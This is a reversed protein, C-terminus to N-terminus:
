SLKRLWVDFGSVTLDEVLLGLGRFAAPYSLALRLHSAEQHLTNDLVSYRGDGWLSQYQRLRWGNLPQLETMTRGIDYNGLIRIKDDVFARSFLMQPYPMKLSPYAHLGWPSWYLPNASLFIMGDPRCVRGIERFAAEPDRLHEFTAYSYVLDFSADPATIRQCVDCELFPLHRARVDRWDEADAVTVQHGYDSLLRAVMGDGAGIELAAKGPRQLETRALLAEARTAARAWTAYSDYGYDPHGPFQAQLAEFLHDSDLYEHPLADSLVQQVRAALKAEKAEVVRKRVRYLRWELAACLREVTLGRLQGDVVRDTM